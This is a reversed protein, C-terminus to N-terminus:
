GCRLSQLKRGTRTCRIRDCQVAAAIQFVCGVLLYPLRQDVAMETGAMEATIPPLTRTPRSSLRHAPGPGKRLAIGLLHALDAADEFFKAQLDCTRSIRAVHEFEFAPVVNRELFFCRRM